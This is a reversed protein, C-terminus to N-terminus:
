VRRVHEQFERVKQWFFCAAATHAIDDGRGLHAMFKALQHWFPERWFGFFIKIGLMEFLANEGNSDRTSDPGFGYEHSFCVDNSIHVCLHTAVNNSFNASLKGCFGM